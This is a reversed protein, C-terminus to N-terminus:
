SEVTNLVSNIYEMNFSDKTVYVYPLDYGLPEDKVIPTYMISDDSYKHKKANKMLEVLKIGFDIKGCDLSLPVVRSASGCHIFLGKVNQFEMSIPYSVTYDYQFVLSYLTWYIENSFANELPMTPFVTYLLLTPEKWNATVSTKVTVEVDDFEGSVLATMMDGMESVLEANAKESVNYVVYVTLKSVDSLKTQLINMPSVHVELVCSEYTSIFIRTISSLKTIAAVLDENNENLESGIVAGRLISDIASM